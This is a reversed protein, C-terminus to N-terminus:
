NPIVPLIIRSPHQPDHFVTNAAVRWDRNANLPEGTNPNVDYRPFSSSSIDVRIRHGKAFVLATPYLEITFEYPRGPELMAPATLSDRYRARIIGDAVNLALGYPFDPNPPYVDVLKATFDTDPGDSSAWLKVTLPGVVELPEALPATQFVLVDPRDALPGGTKCPWLDRRARQDQAGSQMYDGQSSVNGGLSPVPDRPDFRYQSPESAPPPATSLAGGAHLHFPTPVARAIPWEQEDRWHGGVYVRGDPTKHADGGGMVFVRVPADAEAGNDIGKLWRDFWRREVQRMDIAADPGFEAMGSFSVAQQGHTWPGFLLRQRSRKAGALTVYNLNAVPGGWSDYAGTVHLVPIDQYRQARRAVDIGMGAWFADNDGHGMAEVLWAEYDPAHRLATAGPKLPLSLAVDRSHEGMDKLAARVDADAAVKAIAADRSALRDRLEADEAPSAIRGTPLLWRGAPAGAESRLEDCREGAPTLAHVNPNGLMVVWNLWRMEFAGAHRIGFVGPNSMADVPVMAALHPSGAIALAHQTGGVYSTGVTAVKGDSWPQAAIWALLAAGDAGDDALPRWRGESAYRGRVDQVVVAYGHPVFAGPLAATAIGFDKGYPTRALVTAVRGAAAEGGRGPLFVNTALRVGDPMAVMLDRRAIIEFPEEM